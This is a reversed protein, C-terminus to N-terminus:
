LQQGTQAKCQYRFDRPLYGYTLYFGIAPVDELGKSAPLKAYLYCNNEDFYLQENTLGISKLDTMLKRALNFQKDTTPCIVGAQTEDSQTDIQVYELFYDLVTKM